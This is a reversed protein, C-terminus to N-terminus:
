FFRRKSKHHDAIEQLRTEFGAIIMGRDPVPLLHFKKNRKVDYWRSNFEPMIERDYDPIIGAVKKVDVETNLHFVNFHDSESFVFPTIHAPRQTCSIIPIHKSRGQTLLANYGGYRRYNPTMFAEDIFVGTKEQKWIERLFNDVSEDDHLPQPHTIYLGAKDPLKKTHNFFEIGSIENLLSDIKYDVIIWPQEHFNMHSLLWAAM